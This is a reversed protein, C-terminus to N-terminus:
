VSRRLARLRPARAQHSTEAAHASRSRRLRAGVLDASMPRGIEYGQVVDCHMQALLRQAAPTEVGEAVVRLDLNHGLQITSRVIQQKRRDTEMGMVFSRDIKIEDIPLRQLYSFASYGTGFDDIAIGVGMEHLRALLAESRVPDAEISTETIELELASPELGHRELLGAIDAALAIDHLSRASLNVAVRIGLGDRNWAAAQGIAQELVFRTLGHILESREALGIFEDPALEGRQPHQWRVLAEVGEIEETGSTAQPQYVLNLEGREIASRLEGLLALRAESYPDRRQEYIAYGGHVAKAQYMAVDARRLIKDADNGHAPFLAVGMSTEVHVTVGQVVFPAEFHVLVDRVLQGVATVDPQQEILVCFEDGGLRAVIVGPAQLATLRGALQRLLEDGNHHGVTDNIEKFRDLDLLMLVGAAGRELAHSLTRRLLVRNPLGTLTDHTSRRELEDRQRALEDAQRSNDIAVGAHNALTEFLTLDATSWDSTSGRRNGVLLTGVVAEDVRLPAVMAGNIGRTRYHALVRDATEDAGSALRRLWAEVDLWKGLRRDRGATSADHILVGRGEAAVRAWVGERPDLHEDTWNLTGDGVAVSGGAEARSDSEVLRRAADGDAGFLLLEVTAADFMERATALLARAVDDLSFSTQIRRTSEHLRSVSRHRRVERGHFRLMLYVMLGLVILLWSAAPAHWLVTAALLAMAPAVLTYVTGFGFLSGLNPREHQSLWIVLAVSAAAILDSMFAAAFAGLWGPPAIPHASGLVLRFVVLAVAASVAFNALNFLLKIPTQGPRLSLALGAGLAQGILLDVPSAFFLALLLAIESLSFSHTQERVELDVVFRESAFFMVALVPWPLGIPAPLQGFVPLIAAWLAIAGCWLVGVFLTVQASTGM